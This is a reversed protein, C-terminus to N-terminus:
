KAEGFRVSKLFAEFAAKQEGSVKAPALFSFFWLTEGQPAVAVLLRKPEQEGKAPGSLDYLDAEEAGVATKGPQNANVDDTPPLGVQSRWRNVNMMRDSMVDKGFRSVLVQGGGPVKLTLARMRSTPAVTQWGEPMTWAALGAEHAAGTAADSEDGAPPTAQVEASASTEAFRVSKVMEVFKEKDEAVMEAPGRLLFTWTQEGQPILAGLMREQKEGAPGLLEVLQAPVDGAMVPTVLKQLDEESTPPLKLQGEWRAVNAQVSRGGPGNLPVVVVSLQPQDDTVITAYRFKGDGPLQTWGTPLAWQIPQRAPAAAVPRVPPPADKAASYAEIQEEKKCGGLTAGMACVLLFMLMKQM